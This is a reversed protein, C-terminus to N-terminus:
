ELAQFSSDVDLRMDRVAEVVIPDPIDAFPSSFTGGSLYEANPVVPGRAPAPRPGPTPLPIRPPHSTRLTSPPRGEGSRPLATGTM